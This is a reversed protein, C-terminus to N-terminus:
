NKIVYTSNQKIIDQSIYIKSNPLPKPSNSNYQKIAPADRCLHLQITQHRTCACTSNERPHPM